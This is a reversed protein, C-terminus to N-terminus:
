GQTKASAMSVRMRCSAGTSKQTQRYSESILDPKELYRGFRFARAKALFPLGPGLMFCKDFRGNRSAAAAAMTM